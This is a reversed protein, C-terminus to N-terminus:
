PDISLLTRICAENGNDAALHLASAGYCNVMKTMTPDVKLLTHMFNDNGYKAAWHLASEGWEDVSKSNLGMLDEIRELRRIMEYIIIDDPSRTDTTRNWVWPVDDEKLYLCHVVETITLPIIIATNPLIDM